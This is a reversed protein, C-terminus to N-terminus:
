LVRAGTGQGVLHDSLLRGVHQGTLSSREGLLAHGLDIRLRREAAGHVFSLVPM